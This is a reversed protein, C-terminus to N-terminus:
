GLRVRPDLWSYCVDVALNALCLGAAILLTFSQLYIYDRRQISALFATGLGPLNFITEAIVAGALLGGLQLGLITVVPAFANRLAHRYIVMRERLGKSWATRIYDQRLVELLSSRTLRAVSAAAAFGIVIAPLFMMRLNAAPDQLFPIYVIGPSWHFRLGLILIIVTGLVFNPISLGAIAIFRALYDLISNQRLGSIIGTSLGVAASVVWALVGLELTVPGRQKLTEWVPERSYNSIGLDGRLVGGVWELYQVHLPRDLGYTRRLADREEQSIQVDRQGMQTVIDGPVIRMLGFVLLSIGLLTPLTALLRRLIYANM